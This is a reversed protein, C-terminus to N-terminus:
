GALQDYKDTAGLWQTTPEVWKQIQEVEQPTAQARRHSTQSADFDREFAAFVESAQDLQCFSLIKRLLEPSMEELRCELYRDAPLSQGYQRAAEVCMRWQLACVELLPLDRLLGDIGPIRPGWVPQRVLGRLPRPMARRVFERGYYPLQRLNIERLREVLKGKPVGHAHQEWFRRIALVSETADRVIHVFLCGPLVAEVFGMRLSNSPTKEILRQKGSQRVAGAFAARIHRRVDPRADAPSLMDCKGDNGYRWTLRPEELHALAPHAGLLQGLLTTGSRPAGVVVIPRQLLQDIDPETV